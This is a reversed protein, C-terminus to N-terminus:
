AAKTLDPKEKGRWFFEVEVADMQYQLQGNGVPPGGNETRLYGTVGVLDSKLLWHACSDALEGAAVFVSIWVMRREGELSYDVAVPFVVDGNDFQHPDSGLNGVVDLRHFEALAPQGGRGVIHLDNKYVDLLFVGGMDKLQGLRVHHAVFREGGVGATLEGGIVRLRGQMLRNGDQIRYELLQSGYRAAIMGAIQLNIM